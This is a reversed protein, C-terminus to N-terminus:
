PWTSHISSRAGSAHCGCTGSIDMKGCRQTPCTVLTSVTIALRFFIRYSHPNTAHSARMSQDDDFTCFADWADVVDAYM